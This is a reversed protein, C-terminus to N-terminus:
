KLEAQTKTLLRGLLDEESEDPQRNVRLVPSAGRKVISPQVSFGVVAGTGIANHEFLTLGLSMIKQRNTM